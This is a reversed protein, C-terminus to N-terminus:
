RWRNYIHRASNFELVPRDDVNITETAGIFADTQQYNLWPEDLFSFWKSPKINLMTLDQLIGPHSIKQQWRAYDSAPMTDSAIVIADQQQKWIAVYRFVSRMTKAAIRVDNDGLEYLPLWQCLIGGSNLRRSAAQYFERTFLGSVGSVWINPPESTIIDFKQRSMEAFNRGDNIVIEVRHDSLAQDNFKGFYAQAAEVMLPDIEVQWIKAIEQHRVVAQLTFGGGLGIVLVHQPHPHLLVPLHGLLLQTPTDTQSNTADSKGNHKLCISQGHQLVTVQGYFGNKQYVVPMNQIDRKYFSEWSDYRIGHYYVAHAPAEWGTIAPTGALALSLLLTCYIHHRNFRRQSLLLFSYTALGYITLPLLMVGAFGAHPLIVFEGLFSGVVAGLTNIFYLRGVITGKKDVDTLCAKIVLPFNAGMGLTALFVVTFVLLCLIAQFVYYNGTGHFLPIYLREYFTAFHFVLVGGLGVIAFLYAIATYLDNIRDIMKRIAFSGAGIGMLFGALIISLSYINTGNIIYFLRNWGTELVLAALGTFFFTTVIVTARLSRGSAAAPASAADSSTKDSERDKVCALLLALCISAAGLGVTAYHLGLHPVLLFGGCLAGAAAGFTDLAYILSIDRGSSNSAYIKAVVPFVSGICFTPPLLFVLVLLFKLSATLMPSTLSPYSLLFLSRAVDLLPLSFLCYTGLALQLFAAFRVRHRISDIIKGGFLAGLALGLLFVSLVSSFTGVTTGFLFGVKRMWIVQCCLSLFNTFFVCSLMLSNPHRHTDFM